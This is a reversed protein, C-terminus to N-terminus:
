GLEDRRGDLAELEELVRLGFEERASRKVEAKVAEFEDRRQADHLLIGLSRLRQMESLGRGQGTKWLAILDEVRQKSELAPLAQDQIAARVRAAVNEADDGAGVPWWIEKDQEDSVRHGWHCETWEPKTLDFGLYLRPVVVGYNIVFLLQESTSRRSRQLEILSVVDGDDFKRVFKLSRKQFGYGALLSAVSRAVEKFITKADMPM